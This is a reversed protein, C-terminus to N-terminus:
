GGPGRPRASGRPRGAAARCGSRASRRRSSVEGGLVLLQEGVSGHEAPHEPGAPQQGKALAIRGLNPKRQALQGPGLQDAADGLARDGTLVLVRAGCSRPRRYRPGRAGSVVTLLSPRVPM